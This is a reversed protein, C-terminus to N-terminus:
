FYSMLSEIIELGARQGHDEHIVIGQTNRLIYDVDADVSEKIRRSMSGEQPAALIGSKNGKSQVELSFDKNKMILSIGSETLQLNEITSNNYTSFMYYENNLYVFCLFGIFFKGLWPIKAVSVMLSSHDEKFSNCQLWIWSEPFSKGWDKEIYGRGNNFSIEKNNYNISGRIEHNVSVVGHYCEMFPVYSYWGMIGPSLLSFPYPSRKDYFFQGNLTLDDESINLDMSSESFHSEGITVDFTNKSAHFKEIPYTIYYTKGTIGDIVQIFSHADDKSLSIGPIISIVYDLSESVHKFYWGEFYKKKKLSGQFVQPNFIKM